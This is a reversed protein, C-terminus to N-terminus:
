SSARWSWGPAPPRSPELPGCIAPWVRERAAQLDNASDIEVWPLDSVDVCRVRLRPALRDLAAPAWAGDGGAAILDGAERLLLEGARRSFRLIGVNEGSTEEPPLCKSISRLAGREVWVKMHEDEHGSSSDYALGADTTAAAVRRFVAPHALVDSNVVFFDGRVWERALWLSYLSNTEAWRPNLILHCRGGLAARVQEAGCGVVLCVEEVGVEALAALQHEALTRGGVELLCKPGGGTEGGLRRGGGAALIVAQIM